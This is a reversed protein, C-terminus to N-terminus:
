TKLKRFIILHITWAPFVFLPIILAYPLYLALQLPNELPWAFPLPSSMVVVRLVNLLLGFGVVQAFWALARARNVFPACLLCVIGSVVDWNQGTWTMTPPVTGIQAWHHLILELPIRFAQFGILASLSFASAFREGVTSMALIIGFLLTVAFALPLLPLLHARMLGSGVLAVLGLFYITFPLRSVGHIKARRFAFQILGLMVAAFLWFLFLSTRDAEHFRM